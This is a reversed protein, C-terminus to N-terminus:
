TLYNSYIDSITDNCIASNNWPKINLWYSRCNNTQYADIVAKPIINFNYLMYPILPGADYEFNTLGNGIM